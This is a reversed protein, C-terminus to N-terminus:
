KWQMQVMQPKAQKIVTNDSIQGEVVTGAGLVCNKGINTGSTIIVNAGIWTGSGIFIPKNFMKEYRGEEQSLTIDYTRSFMKVGTAMRVNDEIKIGGGARFESNQGLRINDGLEFKNAGTIIVNKGVVLNKGCKKLKFFRWYFGRLRPIIEGRKM